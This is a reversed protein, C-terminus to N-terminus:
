HSAKYKEDLHAVVTDTIDAQEDAFLVTRQSILMRLDDIKLQELSDPIEPRQDAIVLNIGDRKAVEAVAVEIKDFLSKIEQKQKRQIEAAWLRSWSEFEISAQMLKQNAETYQASDPRLEDRQTKLTQLNERKQREQQELQQREGNMKEQLDKTEQLQSFIRATSASAIKLQQAEAPSAIAMISLLAILAISKRFM